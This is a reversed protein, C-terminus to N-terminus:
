DSRASPPGREVMASHAELREGARRALWNTALWAGAGGATAAALLGLTAGPAGGLFTNAALVLAGGVGGALGGTILVRSRITM